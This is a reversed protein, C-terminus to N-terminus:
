EVLEAWVKIGEGGPVLEGSSIEDRINDVAKAIEADTAIFDPDLGKEVWKYTAKNIKYGKQVFAETCEYRLGTEQDVYIQGVSGPTDKTPPGNGKVDSYLQISM